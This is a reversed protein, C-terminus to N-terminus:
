NGMNIQAQSFSQFIRPMLPKSLPCKAISSHVVQKCLCAHITKFLKRTAWAKWAYTCTGLYGSKLFIWGQVRTVNFSFDTPRNYQPPCKAPIFSSVNRDQHTHNIWSHSRGMRLACTHFLHFDWARAKVTVLDSHFLVSRPWIKRYSHQEDRWYLKLSVSFRHWPTNFSNQCISTAWCKTKGKLKEGTQTIILSDQYVNTM